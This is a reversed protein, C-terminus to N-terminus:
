PGPGQLAWVVPCRSSLGMLACAKVVGAVAGAGARGSGASRPALEVRQSGAPLLVDLGCGGRWPGVQAEAVFLGLM